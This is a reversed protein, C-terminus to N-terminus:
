DHIQNLEYWKCEDCLRRISNGDYNLWIVGSSGTERKHCKDCMNTM